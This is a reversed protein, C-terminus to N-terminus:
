LGYQDRARDADHNTRGGCSILRYTGAQIVSENRRAAPMLRHPYMLRGFGLLHAALDILKDARPLSLWLDAREVYGSVAFADQDFRLSELPGDQIHNRPGRQGQSKHKQDIKDEASDGGLFAIASTARM